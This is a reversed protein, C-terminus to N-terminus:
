QANMMSPNQRGCVVFNGEADKVKTAATLTNAYMAVNMRSGILYVFPTRAVKKRQWFLQSRAVTWLFLVNWQFLVLLLTCITHWGWGHLKVIRDFCGRYIPNFLDEALGGPTVRFSGWCFAVLGSFVLFTCSYCCDCHWSPWHRSAQNQLTVQLLFDWEEM